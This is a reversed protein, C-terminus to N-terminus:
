KHLTSIKAKEHTLVIEHFNMGIFTEQFIHVHTAARKQM